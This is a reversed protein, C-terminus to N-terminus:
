PTEGEELVRMRDDPTLARPDKHFMFMKSNYFDSLCCGTYGKPLIQGKESYDYMLVPTLGRQEVTYVAWEGHVEKNISTDIAVKDGIYIEVGMSDSLGTSVRPPWKGEAVAQVTEWVHEYNPWDHEVVVCEETPVGREILFKRLADETVNDMRKLKTVIYREERKFETM